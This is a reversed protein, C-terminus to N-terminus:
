EVVELYGLTKKEGAEAVMILRSARMTSSIISRSGLSSGGYSVACDLLRHSTLLGSVCGCYVKIFPWWSRGALKLAISGNKCQLHDRYPHTLYIKSVLTQSCQSRRRPYKYNHQRNRKKIPPTLGTSSPSGLSSSSQYVQARILQHSDQLNTSSPNGLSSTPYVQARFPQHNASQHVQPGCALPPPPFRQALLRSLGTTNYNTLSPACQSGPSTTSLTTLVSFLPRPRTLSTPSSTTYSAPSSTSSLISGGATSPLSSSSALLAAQSSEELRRKRREDYDNLVLMALPLCPIEFLAM